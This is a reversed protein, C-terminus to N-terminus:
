QDSKASDVDFIIQKTTEIKQVPNYVDPKHSKLFFIQAAVNRSKVANDFLSQEVEETWRLKLEQICQKLFPDREYHKQYTHFSVGVDTIAKYLRFKYKDLLQLFKIKKQPTFLM